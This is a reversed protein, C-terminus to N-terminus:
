NKVAIPKSSFLFVLINCGAQAKSKHHLCFLEYDPTLNLSVKAIQRVCDKFTVARKKARMGHGINGGASSKKERELTASRRPKVGVSITPLDQYWKWCAQSKSM